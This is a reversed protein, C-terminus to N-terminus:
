ELSFYKRVPSLLSLLIIIIGYFFYLPQLFSSYGLWIVQMVIWGSVIAGSLLIASWTWHMSKFPNLRVPIQWNPRKMICCTVFFPYIGNCLFLVLGPIYYNTFPSNNLQSVPMGMLSGDPALMLVGGGAVAGFGLLVLLIFILWVESPLKIEKKMTERM